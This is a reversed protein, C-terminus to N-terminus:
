RNEQHSNSYNKSKKQLKLRRIAGTLKYGDSIMKKEEGMELAAPIAASHKCFIWKKIATKCHSLSDCTAAKLKDYSWKNRHMWRYRLDHSLRVSVILSSAWSFRGQNFTGESLTYIECTVHQDTSNISCRTCTHTLIHKKNRGLFTLRDSLLMAPGLNDILDLDSFTGRVCYDQLFRVCVFVSVQLSAFM